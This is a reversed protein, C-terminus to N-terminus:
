PKRCVLICEASAPTGGVPEDVNAFEVTDGQYLDCVEHIAWAVFLDGSAADFAVTPRWDETAFSTFATTGNILVDFKTEGSSGAGNTPVRFLMRDIVLHEHGVMLDDIAGPSGPIAGRLRLEVTEGAYVRRDVIGGDVIVGGALTVACWPLATSQPRVDDATATFLGTVLQWVYCTSDDFAALPIIQHAGAFRLSGGGWARGYGIRLNTGGGPTAEYRDYEYLWEIDDTTIETGGANYHITVYGLVENGAPPAPKVPSVAKVGKTATRVGAGVSIMVLYSEGSALTDADGDDQDFTFTEGVLGYLQGKHLRMGAGVYLEDLPGPIQPLMADYPTSIVGSRTGDGIGHLVGRDAMTLSLPVPMAFEDYIPVLATTWPAVEAEGPPHWLYEYIVACGAPITPVLPSMGYAGMPAWDTTPVTWTPDAANVVGIIRARGWMQDQPPAGTALRVNPDTPSVTRQLFGANTATTEGDNTLKVTVVASDEGAEAGAMPLGNLPTTGDFRYLNLM